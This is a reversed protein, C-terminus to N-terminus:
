SSSWLSGLARMPIANAAAIAHGSKYLAAVEENLGPEACRDDVLLGDYSVRAVVTQQEAKVKLAGQARRSGGVPQGSTIGPVVANLPRDFRELKLVDSTGARFCVVSVM